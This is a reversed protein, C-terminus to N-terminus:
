VIQPDAARPSLGPGNRKSPQNEDPTSTTLPDDQTGQALLRVRGNRDGVRASTTGAPASPPSQRRKLETMGPLAPM